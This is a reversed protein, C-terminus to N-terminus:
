CRFTKTDFMLKGEDMDTLDSYDYDDDNDETTTARDIALENRTKKVPMKKEPSSTMSDEEDSYDGDSKFKKRM